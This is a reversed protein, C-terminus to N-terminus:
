AHDAREDASTRVGRRPHRPIAHWCVLWTLLYVVSMAGGFVWVTTTVSASVHGAWGFCALIVMVRVLDLVLQRGQLELAPLTHTIPTVFFRAGALVALAPMLDAVLTWQEGLLWRVVPPALVGLGATIMVAFVFTRRSTVWFIRIVPDGARRRAAFQGLYVQGVAVAVLTVPLTAVLLAVGFPGAIETGFQRAVLIMPVQLGIMNLLGAPMGVFPFRRYRMAMAGLVSRTRARRGQPTGLGSGLLLGPLGAVRGILYGLMLGSPGPLLPALALQTLSTAGPQLANRVGLARYRHHRVALQGLVAFWASLGGAVPVMWWWSSSEPAGTWIALHEDLMLAAVLGAGGLVTAAGLGLLTVALADREHEPLPVAKEFRLSMVSSAIVAAASLVAFAGFEAPTYLRTIVPIAAVAVLQGIITGTVMAAVGRRAASSLLARSTRQRLSTM